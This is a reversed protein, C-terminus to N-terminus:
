QKYGDSMWKAFLDLQSQPWFPGGPPMSHDKLVELVQSANSHNDSPDSMYTYDDLLVGLNKMHAVDIPRFLPKIDKDFSVTGAGGTPTSSSSGSSAPPSALKFQPGYISKGDPRSLKNALLQTAQGRLKRMSGIAASLEALGGGSWAGELQTLMTTFTQDCDLVPQPPNPYGNLPVPKMQSIKDDPVTISDGSWDGTQAAVDYVYKKRYYLQGFTYFHSLQNGNYYPNKSGGEGQQQIQSIAAAAKAFSDVVFLGLPGSLQNAKNYQFKGDNLRFAELVADYFRGISTFTEQAALLKPKPVPDEPYEIRACMLAFSKFDEFGLTVELPKDCPILKKDCDPVVGGPLPGPYKIHTAYRKLVEPKGSLACLMNCALGFHAMEQMVIPHIMNFIEAVPDSPPYGLAWEGCLYPPLTSLELEVASQLASRLWDPDRKKVKMLEVIEIGM